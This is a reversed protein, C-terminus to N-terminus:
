LRVVMKGTNGGNLLDLFAQPANHLGEVVTEAHQLTGDRLWGSVDSIMEPYRGMHDFIIFGRLTLSKLYM